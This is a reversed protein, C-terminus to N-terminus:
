DIIPILGYPTFEVQKILKYIGDEIKCKGTKKDKHEPHLLSTGKAVLYGFIFEGDKPKVLYLEGKDISHRNGHSGVMFTKTKSIELGKPLEEINLLMIEGHRYAKQKM